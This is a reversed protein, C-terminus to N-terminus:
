PNCVYWAELYKKENREARILIHRFNLRCADGFRLGFSEGNWEKQPIAPVSGTRMRRFVPNEPLVDLSVKEYTTYMRIESIDMHLIAAAALVFLYSARFKGKIELWKEQSSISSKMEILHVLWQNDGIQEFIMHDARKKLSLSKEDRLFLFGTNKKDLNKIAMSKKGSVKFHLCTEGGPDTEELEYEGDPNQEFFNDVFLKDIIYKRYEENM